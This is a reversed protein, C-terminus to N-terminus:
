CIRVREEFQSYIYNFWNSNAKSLQKKDLTIIIQQYPNYNNCYRFWGEKIALQRQEINLVPDFCDTRKITKWSCIGCDKRRKKYFTIYHADLYLEETNSINKRSWVLRGCYCFLQYQNELVSM